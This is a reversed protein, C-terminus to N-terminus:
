SASSASRGPEPGTWATGDLGPLPRRPAARRRDRILHCNLPRSALSSLRPRSPVALASCLPASRLPMASRPGPALAPVPGARGCQAARAPGPWAAPPPPPPPLPAPGPRSLLSLAQRAQGPRQSAQQSAQQSAYCVDKKFKLPTPKPKSM